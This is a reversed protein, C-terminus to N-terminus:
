KNNLNSIIYKNVETMVADKSNLDYRNEIWLKADTLLLQMNVWEDYLDKIEPRVIKNLDDVIELFKIRIKSGWAIQKESGLLSQLGLEANKEEICKLEKALQCKPCEQQEMQRIKCERDSIKGFLEINEIHGCTHKVTYKGM